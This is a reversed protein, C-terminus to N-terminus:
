NGSSSVMNGGTVKWLHWISYIFKSKISGCEPMCYLAYLLFYDHICVRSRSCANAGPTLTSIADAFFCSELTDFVYIMKDAKDGREVREM